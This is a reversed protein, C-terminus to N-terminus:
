SYSSSFTPLLWAFVGVGIWGLGLGSDGGEGGGGRWDEGVSGRLLVGGVFEGGDVGTAGLLGEDVAADM